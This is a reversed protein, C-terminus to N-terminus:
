FLTRWGKVRRGSDPFIVEAEGMPRMGFTIERKRASAILMDGHFIRSVNNNKRFVLAVRGPM